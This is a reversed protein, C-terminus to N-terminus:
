SEWMDKAEIMDKGEWGVKDNKHLANGVNVRNRVRFCVHLLSLNM